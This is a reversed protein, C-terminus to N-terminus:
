TKQEQSPPQMWRALWIFLGLMFFAGSPMVMITWPIWGPGLVRCGLISGFGLFERVVAIAILMFSYGLGTGLGDYLSAKVTNNSAFAECRGMIICNTIILGVYPGLAKWIEPAYAKLGVDVVIVYAAIILMQVMMRVRRPTYNRLASVTLESMIVVFTLGACMALTNVLLNTVALTSCIGLVQRFIPNDYWLGNIFVKGRTKSMGVVAM